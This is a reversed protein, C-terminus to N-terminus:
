KFKPMEGFLPHVVGNVIEVEGDLSGPIVSLEAEEEIVAEQPSMEPDREQVVTSLDGPDSGYPKENFDRIM